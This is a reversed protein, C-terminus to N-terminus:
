SNGYSYEKDAAEDLQKMVEKTFYKEPDHMSPNLMNNQVM